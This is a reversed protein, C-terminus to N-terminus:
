FTTGLKGRRSGPSVQSKSQDPPPPPISATSTGPYPKLTRVAEEKSGQFGLGGHLATGGGQQPSWTSLPAKGARRLGMWGLQPMLQSHLCRGCGLRLLGELRRCSGSLGLALRTSPFWGTSGLPSHPIPLIQNNKQIVSNQHPKGHLM